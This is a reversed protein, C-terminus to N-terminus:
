KVFSCAIMSGCAREVVREVPRMTPRAPVAEAAGSRNKRGPASSRIEICAAFHPGLHFRPNSCKSLRTNCPALLTSGPTFFLTCTMSGGKFLAAKYTNICIIQPNICTQHSTLSISPNTTPRNISINLPIDLPRRLLLHTALPLPCLNSTSVPRHCPMVYISAYVNLPQMTTSPLHQQISCTSEELMFTSLSIVDCCWEWASCDQLSFLYLTHVAWFTMLYLLMTTTISRRDRMGVM